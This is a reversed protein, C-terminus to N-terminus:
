TAVPGSRHSVEGNAAKTEGQVQRLLTYILRKNRGMMGYNKHIVSGLDEAMEKLENQTLHKQRRSVVRELSGESRETRERAAELKMAEIEQANM